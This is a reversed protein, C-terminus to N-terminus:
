ELNWFNSFTIELPVNFARLFATEKDIVRITFYGAKDICWQFSYPGISSANAYPSKAIMFNESKPEINDTLILENWFELDVPKSSNTSVTINGKRYDVPISLYCQGMSPSTNNSVTVNISVHKIPAVLGKQAFTQEIITENLPGIHYVTAGNKGVFVPPM